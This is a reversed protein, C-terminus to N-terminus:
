RKISSSELVWYIYLAPLQECQLKPTKHLFLLLKSAAIPRHANAYIGRRGSGGASQTKSPPQKNDYSRLNQM